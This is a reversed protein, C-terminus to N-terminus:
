AGERGPKLGPYALSLSVYRTEWVLLGVHTVVLTVGLPFLEVWNQGKVVLVAVILLGFRLMFGGLAGVMIATLSIRAAGTLILAAVVLNVLVLGEAFAASLAGHVGWGLGAILVLIPMVPLGRRIMDQVIQREVPPGAVPATSVM